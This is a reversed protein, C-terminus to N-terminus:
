RAEHGGGIQELIEDIRDEDGRLALWGLLATKAALEGDAGPARAASRMDDVFDKLLGPAALESDGLADARVKVVPRPDRGAFLAELGRKGEEILRGSGLGRLYVAPRVDPPQAKILGEAEALAEAEAGPAVLVSLRRSRCARSLPLRRVAPAAGPELEVELVCRPDEEKVTVADPSGPYAAASGGKLTWTEPKHIHGFAFYAAGVAELDADMFVSDGEEEAGEPDSAYMALGDRDAATGHLIVVGGRVRAPLGRLLDGGSLGAQFPIGYFGVGEVSSEEYPEQGLQRVHGGLDFRGDLPHPGRGGPRDHNGPIVLVPKPSCEALVEKLAARLGADQAAAPSHFLDGAIVLADQGAAARCIERLVALRRRGDPDALAVLHVDATHLFRM